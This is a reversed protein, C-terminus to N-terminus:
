NDVSIDTYTIKILFFILFPFHLSVKKRRHFCENNNNEMNIQSLLQSNTLDFEEM